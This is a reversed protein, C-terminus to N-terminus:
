EPLTLRALCWAEQACIGMKRYYRYNEVFRTFSLWTRLM